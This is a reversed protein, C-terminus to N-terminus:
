LYGRFRISYASGFMGRKKFCKDRSFSRRNGVELFLFFVWGLPGGDSRALRAKPLAGAFEGGPQCPAGGSLTPEKGVWGTENEPPRKLGWLDPQKRLRNWPPEWFAVTFFFFFFFFVVVVVLADPSRPAEMNTSHLPGTKPSQGRPVGVPRATGNRAASFFCLRGRRWGGCSGARSSWWCGPARPM